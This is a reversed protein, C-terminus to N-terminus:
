VPADDSAPSKSLSALTGITSNAVASLDSAPFEWRQWSKQIEANQNIIENV